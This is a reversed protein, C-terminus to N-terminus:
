ESDPYLHLINSEGDEIVEYSWGGVHDVGSRAFFSKIPMEFITKKIRRVKRNCTPCLWVQYGEDDIGLMIARHGTGYM